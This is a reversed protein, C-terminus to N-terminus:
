DGRVGVVDEAAVAVYQPYGRKIMDCVFARTSQIPPAELFALYRRERAVFDLTRHFRDIHDQTIPIIEPSDM